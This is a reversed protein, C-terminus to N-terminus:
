KNKNERRSARQRMQYDDACDRAKDADFVISKGIRSLIATDLVGERLLKAIQSPSCACYEAVAQVGKLRTVQSAERGETNITCAYAHLAVYEEGTMQWLPKDLLNKVNVMDKKEVFCSIFLFFDWSIMLNLILNM